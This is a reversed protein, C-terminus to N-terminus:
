STTSSVELVMAEWPRLTVLGGDEEFSVSEYNGILLDTITEDRWLDLRFPSPESSFNLLVLVVEGTTKDFRRYAFITKHEPALLEFDGYVLVQRQKRMILLRRWFNWVSAPDDMQSAVNWGEAYDPHIRMWPKSTTFGASRSGDWQMPTRANDRAKRRAAKMAESMDPSKLGTLKQAKRLEEKYFTKTRIDPYDEIGWDHPVNIQGIDEGQFLYLTGGQMIALLKASLARFQPNDNAFRTISRAQDHNELYLSNWGGMDYMSNQLREIIAKFQPLTWPKISMPGEVSEDIDMLTFNFVMNLERSSPAVYPLLTKPDHTFPCEGVTIVKYHSFVDDHMAQLFEHIRPGNAVRGLPPQFFTGKEVVPADPLGPTKSICNIVDLRFGDIGKDLWFRMLSHAEERLRPNEWNLDPQTVSFLHLYYEQTTNDWEWASSAWNNPPLREGTASWRPPRWIYYDRKPNNRSSRSEKFWEHSASTHNLVMDMILRMGLRHTERLLHEFDQMTGYARHIARYNSIDYRAEEAVEQIAEWAADLHSEKTLQSGVTVRTCHMGGVVTPTLHIDKREAVRTFFDRNLADEKVADGDGKLRFVVLSLRRPVFLEYKDSASLVLKEFHITKNILTRLHTQFGTVGYSRLVFYIKLSRFRRGLPMQWNRYDVVTGVATIEAINDIAGTSTSGITALLAFPVLGEEKAQELASRLAEGRLAWLDEAKTEIARFKLGLILAAKAGLSHTQTTGFIVLKEAPTDPFMRLVRERAAICVTLCSESASGMIIGGGVNSANHFSADLGFLKATWDMMVVELETCAPSCTWNFGPNSVAGALIDALISEYTTNAPFYALFGPHQWHTIGPLIVDDFDKAIASWAEGEVPAETPIMRGVDGPGVSPMVEKMTELDEFYQCVRDIAAYGAKRFQERDM